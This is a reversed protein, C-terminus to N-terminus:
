QDLQLTVDFQFHGSQYAKYNTHWYNNLVYWFLPSNNNAWEESWVKAGNKQNEDIMGGVELLAMQPSSLRFVTTNNILKVDKEVCIFEKNSGPLQSKGYISPESDTRYLLSKWPLPFAIHLSEKDKVEAKQFSYHAKIEGSILNMDYTITLESFGPLELFVTAWQHGITTFTDIRVLKPNITHTPNIKHRYILQFFSLTDIRPSISKGRMQIHSLGGTQPDILFNNATTNSNRSYFGADYDVSPKEQMKSNAVLKNYQVLASDLYSKKINWQDTTFPIEPDSISCWSGWTHEHFLVLNKHISQLLHLQISTRSNPPTRQEWDLIKRVLDRAEMEEVATSYAGDEWYPSMEGTKVPISQSYSDEMQKFLHPIDDLILKPYVYQNNWQQILACLTTDVPGNDAKKTYRLQVISYPYNNEILENCYKSLRKEFEIKKLHEPINHFYSYGKGATWVLLKEESKLNPKWYFFQDGQERIIGGVRDGHDAQTEVYNPGLSLYKIGRDTYAKLASYTIGPIDTIMASQIDFGYKETLFRAYELNWKQEEGVCLGTLVNAYNATLIINGSKVALVFAKEEEETATKLFQEVAWLSEVHWKPQGEIESWQIAQRINNSQITAVETQLHSYGIDNHSHHIIHFEIPKVASLVVPIRYIDKSKTIMLITDFGTSSAAYAPWQFSNYGQHLLQSCQFFKSQFQIEEETKIPWDIFFNVVRKLEKRTVLSTVQVDFKLNRAYQFVMFWDRSSQNQGKISFQTQKKALAAPITIYLFGFGDNNLDYSQHIFQFSTGSKGAGSYTYHGNQQPSTTLTFLENGNLSVDFKREGSSTGTSHGVLLEYVVTKKHNTYQPATWIIPSNGNARTLLSQDAFQQLPSYYQIVEGDIKRMYGPITDQSNKAWCLMPFM